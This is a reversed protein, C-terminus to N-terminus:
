ICDSGGCDVTPKSMSYTATTSGVATKKADKGCGTIVTSLTLLILFAMLSKFTRM